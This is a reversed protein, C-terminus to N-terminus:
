IHILSLENTNNEFNDMEKCIKKYDSNIKDTIKSRKRIKQLADLNLFIAKYKSVLVDINKMHLYMYSLNASFNSNKRLNKIIIVRKLYGTIVTNEFVSRDFLDTPAKMKLNGIIFNSMTKIAHDYDPFTQMVVENLLTVKGRNWYIQDQVSRSDRTVNFIVCFIKTIFSHIGFSISINSPYISKLFETIIVKGVVGGGPETTHCIKIHLGNRKLDFGPPIHHVGCIKCKKM